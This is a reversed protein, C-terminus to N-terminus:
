RTAKARGDASAALLKQYSSAIAAEFHAGHRWSLVGPQLPNRIFVGDCRIADLGKRTKAIRHARPGNGPNGFIEEIRQRPLAECAGFV